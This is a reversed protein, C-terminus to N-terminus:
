NPCVLSLTATIITKKKIYIYLSLANVEDFGARDHGVPIALLPM